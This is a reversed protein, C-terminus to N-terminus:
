KFDGTSLTERRGDTLTYQIRSDDLWELKLTPLGNYIPRGLHKVTGAQLNLWHLRIGYQGAPVAEGP